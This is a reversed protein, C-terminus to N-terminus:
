VGNKMGFFHLMWESKGTETRRPTFGVWVEDALKSYFWGMANELCKGDEGPTPTWGTREHTFLTWEKGFPISPIRGTPIPQISLLVAQSRHPKVVEVAKAETTPKSNKNKNLM